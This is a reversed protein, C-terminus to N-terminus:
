KAIKELFKVFQDNRFPRTDVGHINAFIVKCEKIKAGNKIEVVMRAAHFQASAVKAQVADFAAQRNIGQARLGSWDGHAQFFYGYQTRHLTGIQEGDLEIANQGETTSKMLKLM